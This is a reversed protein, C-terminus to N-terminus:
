FGDAAQCCDLPEIGRTRGPLWVSIEQDAYDAM